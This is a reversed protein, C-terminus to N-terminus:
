WFKWWPAADTTGCPLVSRGTLKDWRSQGSTGAVSSQFPGQILTGDASSFVDFNTYFVKSGIQEKATLNAHSGDATGFFTLDSCAAESIDARDFSVKRGFGSIQNGSQQLKVAFEFVGRGYQPIYSTSASDRLRWTGNFPVSAFPNIHLWGLVWPIPSYLIAAVGFIAAVHSSFKGWTELRSFYSVGFRQTRSTRKKGLQTSPTQDM